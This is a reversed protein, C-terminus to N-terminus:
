FFFKYIGFIFIVGLVIAGSRHLFNGLKANKVNDAAIIGYFGYAAMVILLVVHWIPTEM